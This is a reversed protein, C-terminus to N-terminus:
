KKESDFKKALNWPAISELVENPIHHGRYGIITGKENKEFEIQDIHKMMTTIVERLYYKFDLGNMQSTKYLSYYLALTEAGHITDNAMMSNRLVNLERFSQEMRNNHMIGHPSSLFAELGSKNNLLYNVAKKTRESCNWTKNQEDYHSAKFAEGTAFVKDVLPKLQTMKLEVIDKTSDNECIATLENFKKFCGSIQNIIDKVFDIDADWGQKSYSKIVNGNKDTAFNVVSVFYRKVHVWCLGHILLVSTGDKLTIGKDDTWKKFFKYFADSMLFANSEASNDILLQIPLEADRVLSHQYIAVKETIIGFIYSRLTKSVSKQEKRKTKDSDGPPSEVIDEDLDIINQNKLRGKERCSWYTEDFGITKANSIYNELFEMVPKLLYGIIETYSYLQQRTFGMGYSELNMSIRNLPVKMMIWESVVFVLALISMRTKSLFDANPSSPLPITEGPIVVGNEDVMEFTAKFYQKTVKEVIIEDKESSRLFGSYRLRQGKENTFITGNLEKAQSESLENGNYDIYVQEIRTTVNSERGKTARRAKENKEKESRDEERNKDSTNRENKSNGYAKASLSKTTFNKEALQKELKQNIKTLQKFSKNLESHNKQLQNFSTQLQNFSTQLTEFASIIVIILSSLVQLLSSFVPDSDRNFSELKSLTEQINKKAEETKM